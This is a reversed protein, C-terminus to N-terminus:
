PRPAFRVEVRLGGFSSERLTMAARHADVIRAVIALGLGVGQGSQGTGRYFRRLVQEHEAKPIGKGSDEVSLLVRGKDQATAIRISGADPTYTMANSVLNRLLTQLAVKDAKIEDVALDCELRIRRREALEVFDTLVEACAEDIRVSQTPLATGMQVDARALSLLQTVLRSCRDVNATLATVDRIREGAEVARAMVQAQVRMSALPTRLEHAALATFGRERDLALDVTGLLGNVASIVPVLERPPAAIDLRALNAASRGDLEKGMMQMATFARRILLWTIGLMPVLAALLAVVVDRLFAPSVLLGADGVEAVQIEMDGSPSALVAVDHTAGGSGRELVGRSGAPAFRQKDPASHSRLLLEGSRAWIQYAYRQGLTQQTESHVPAVGTAAAGDAHVETL